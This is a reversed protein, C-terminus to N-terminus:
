SGNKFIKQLGKWLMEKKTRDNQIQDLSDAWLQIKGEESSLDYPNLGNKISDNVGFFLQTKAPTDSNEYGDIPIFDVDSIHLGVADLVQSLFSGEEKSRSISNKNDLIILVKASDSKPLEPDPKTTESVKSDPLIYLDEHILFGLARPDIPEMSVTQNWAL